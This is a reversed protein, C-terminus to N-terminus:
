SSCNMWTAFCMCNWDNIDPQQPEYLGSFIQYEAFSQAKILHHRSFVWTLWDQTRLFKIQQESATKLHPALSNHWFVEHTGLQNSVSHNSVYAILQGHADSCIMSPQSTSSTARTFSIHWENESDWQVGIWMRYFTVSIFTFGSAHLWIKNSFIWQSISCEMHKALCNPDASPSTSNDECIM